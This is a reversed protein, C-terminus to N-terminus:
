SSARGAVKSEQSANAPTKHCSGLSRRQPLVAFLCHRLFWSVLNSLKDMYHFPIQDTWHSPVCYDQPFFLGFCKKLFIM